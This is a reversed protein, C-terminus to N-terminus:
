PVLTPELDKLKDGHHSSDSCYSLLEGRYTPAVANDLADPSSGRVPAAVRAALQLQTAEDKSLFSSCSIDLPNPTGCGSLAFVPVVFAAAGFTRARRLWFTDRTTM